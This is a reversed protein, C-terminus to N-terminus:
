EIKYFNGLGAGFMEIDIEHIALPGGKPSRILSIFNNGSLILDSIDWSLAIPNRSDFAGDPTVDEGNVEVTVHASLSPSSPRCSGTVILRASEPTGNRVVFKALVRHGGAPMVICGQDDLIGASGSVEINKKRPPQNPLPGFDIRFHDETRKDLVFKQLFEYDISSRPSPVNWGYEYVQSDPGTPSIPVYTASKPRVSIRLPGWSKEGIRYPTFWRNMAKAKYFLVYDGCPLIQNFQGPKKVSITPVTLDKGSEYANTANEIHFFQIVLEQFTNEMGIEPFYGSLQRVSFAVAGSEMDCRRLVDALQDALMREYDSKMKEAFAIRERIQPHTSWISYERSGVDALMTLADVAGQPDFGARTMYLIGLSDAEREHERSYGAFVAELIPPIIQRLFETNNKRSLETAAWQWFEGVYHEKLSSIWHRQTIHAIEHGFVFALGAEANPNQYIKNIFEQTIYVGGGPIAFANIGPMDIVHFTYKMNYPLSRRNCVEVISQGVATDGPYTRYLSDLVERIEHSLKAELFDWDGIIFAMDQFLQPYDKYRNFIADVVKEFGQTNAEFPSATLFLVFTVICAVLKPLGNTGRPRRSMYYM